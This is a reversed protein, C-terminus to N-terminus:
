ISNDQKEKEAYFRKKEIYMREDALAYVGSSRVEASSAFGVSMRIPISVPQDMKDRVEIVKEKTAAMIRDCIVKAQDSKTGPCLVVFEDGGVRCAWDEKRCSQQLINAGQVIMEDGAVHGINDNIPKLGNIDVLLISFDCFSNEAKLEIQRNLEIQFYNRSFLGTLQDTNALKELEIALLRNETAITLHELFITLVEEQDTVIRDSKILLKGVMKGNRGRMPFIIWASSQNNKLKFWNKRTASDDTLTENNDLLFQQESESIGISRFSRPMHSRGSDIIIAMQSGPLLSELHTFVGDILDVIKDARQMTAGSNLLSKFIINKRESVQKAALAIQENERFISSFTLVLYGLPLSIFFATVAATVVILEDFGKPIPTHIFPEYLKKAVYYAISMALTIAFPVLILIQLTKDISFFRKLLNMM